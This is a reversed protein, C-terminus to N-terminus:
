PALSNSPGLHERRDVSVEHLGKFLVLRQVSYGDRLRLEADGEAWDFQMGLLTWDHM